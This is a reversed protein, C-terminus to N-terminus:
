YQHLVGSSIQIYDVYFATVKQRGKKNQYLKKSDMTM